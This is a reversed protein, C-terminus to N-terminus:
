QGGILKFVTFYYENYDVGPFRDWVDHKFVDKNKCNSVHADAYLANVSYNNSEKYAKDNSQMRQHSLNQRGWLVDTAYPLTQHLQDFKKPFESPAFISTSMVPNRAIPYYTYGIRVWQNRATGTEPDVQKNFEQPLVGWPGPKTYSEYKYTDLRNGPCYFIEPQDMFGAVYLKAWRLPIPNGKSDFWEPKDARYVAYGHGMEAKGTNDVADPLIDFSQSYSRMAVGVQRLRSACVVRKAIDKAMKLGPILIALLLAIIAIVVLLEILTFGRKRM